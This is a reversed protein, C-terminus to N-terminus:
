LIQLIYQLDLSHLLFLYFNLFFVVVLSDDVVGILNFQRIHLASLSARHHIQQPVFLELKSWGDPNTLLDPMSVIAFEDVGKEAM